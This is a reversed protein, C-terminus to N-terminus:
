NVRLKLVRLAMNSNKGKSCTPILVRSINWLDRETKCILKWSESHQFGGVVKCALVLSQPQQSHEKGDMGM